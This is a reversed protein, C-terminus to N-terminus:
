NILDLDPIEPGEYANFEEIYELFNSEAGKVEFINLKEENFTLINEGMMNEIIEKNYNISSLIIISNTIGKNIDQEDVILEIKAYNYMIEILYQKELKTVELYGKIGDYTIDESIYAEKNKNFTVEKNNFYSVLDIYMYYKQNKHTIIENQNQTSLSTLNAPLYYKYGKRYQNTFTLKSEQVEKILELHNNKELKTCGSIVFLIITLIVIKKM